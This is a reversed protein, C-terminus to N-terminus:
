LNFRKSHRISLNRGMLRLRILMRRGDWILWCCVDDERVLEDKSLCRPM